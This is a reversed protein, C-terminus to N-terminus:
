YQMRIKTIIRKETVSVLTEYGVFGAIAVVFLRGISLVLDGVHNLALVDILNNFILDSSKSAAEFFPIGDKAVIVYANRILYRFFFDLQAIIWNIFFALLRVFINRSSATTWYMAYLIMRIAKIITIVWSGLCVSGLHFRFLNSYTKLMPAGLKEKNRTFYWKSVTGAIIFHQCGILFQTFWFFAIINLIRAFQIAWNQQLIVKSSNIPDVEMTGSSEILFAIGIFPMVAFATSIFTFIPQIMLAPLDILAKSTEKFLQIVLKIRDRICIVVILSVFTLFTMIISFYLLDNADRELSSSTAFKYWSFSTIFVLLALSLITISWVAFHACHRFLLLLVYSFIVAVFCILGITPLSYLLDNILIEFSSNLEVFDSQKQICFNIM